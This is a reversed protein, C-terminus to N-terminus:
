IKKPHNSVAISAGSASRKIRASVASGDELVAKRSTISPSFAPPGHPDAVPNMKRIVGEVDERIRKASEHTILQEWTTMPVDAFFEPDVRDFPRVKIDSVTESRGHALANRFHFLEQISTRPRSDVPFAVDLRECIIDFKSLVPLRDMRRWTKFLRPGIHNLYAEFTFAALLLSSMVGWYNAETGPAARRLLITSGDWMEAYMTVRRETTIRANPKSGPKTMLYEERLMTLPRRFRFSRNAGTLVSERLMAWSDDLLGADRIGDRTLHTPSTM